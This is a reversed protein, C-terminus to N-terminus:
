IAGEERRAGVGPGGRGSGHEGRGALRRERSRAGARGRRWRGPLSSAEWAARWPGRQRGTSATMGQDGVGRHRAPQTTHGRAVELHPQGRYFFPLFSYLHFSIFLFYGGLGSVLPGLTM